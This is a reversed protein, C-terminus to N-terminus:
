SPSYDGIGTPWEAPMQASVGRLRIHDVLVRDCDHIHSILWTDLLDLLPDTTTFRGERYDLVHERVRETLVRHEAVHVDTLHQPFEARPMLDEETAFHANVHQTLFDLVGLIQSPDDSADCLQNFIRHIARHQLDVVRDGTELSADWEIRDV